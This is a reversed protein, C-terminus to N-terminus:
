SGLEGLRRVSRVRARPIAIVDHKNWVGFDAAKRLYAERGAPDEGLHVDADRLVVQLDDAIDCRGVWLEGGTDVVVTIGHLEGRDDHFTGM